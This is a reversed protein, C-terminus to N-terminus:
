ILAIGLKKEPFYQDEIEKIRAILEVRRRAPDIGVRVTDVGYDGAGIPSTDHMVADLVKLSVKSACWEKLISTSLNWGYNYTVKVRQPGSYPTKHHFYLGFGLYQNTKSRKKLIVYHTSATTGETLSEWADTSGLGSTRRSLSAVSVIPM